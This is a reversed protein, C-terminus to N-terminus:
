KIYLQMYTDIGIAWNMGGEVKGVQHEYMHERCRLRYKQKAFLNMLIMKRSEVYM